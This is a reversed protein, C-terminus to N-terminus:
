PRWCPTEHGGVPLIERGGVLMQTLLEGLRREARLKIEAAHNQAEIVM